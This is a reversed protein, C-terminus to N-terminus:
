KELTAKYDPHFIGVSYKLSSQAWMRANHENGKLDQTIADDLCSAASSQMVAMNNVHKRALDIVQQTTLKM